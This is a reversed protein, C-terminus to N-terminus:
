SAGKRLREATHERAAKKGAKRAQSQSIDIEASRSRYKAIEDENIEDIMFLGLEGVRWRQVMMMAAADLDAAGGKHLRGSRRAIADLLQMIDNTPPHYTSYLSPDYRNIHFLLYDALIFPPVITDKVNGCVGFKLMAESNPVYPIFVGPTDLVYVPCDGTQEDGELIKVSTGVKRTIGPQAGTRAAKGRHVGASRLANLLSSKGVNPMGIVMCHATLQNQEITRQRLLKLLANIDGSAHHDSFHM